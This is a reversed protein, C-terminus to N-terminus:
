FSSCGYTRWSQRTFFLRSFNVLGDLLLIISDIDGDCNRRKLRTFISSRLTRQYRSRRYNPVQESTHPAIGMAMHGFLDSISKCNYYPELGYLEQLLEDMYQTVKLFKDACNQPIVIDQCKLEVVDDVSDCEYGLRNAQEVTLGIESPKFHTM